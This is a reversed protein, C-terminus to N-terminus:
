QCSPLLDDEKNTKSEWKSKMEAIIKGIQEANNEKTENRKNYNRKNHEMNQMHQQQLNCMDRSNAACTAAYFLFYRGQRDKPTNLENGARDTVTIFGKASLSKITDSIVRRSLKTKNEFQSYTIRDKQKRWGYTQRIIVLLVKLEAYSLVPLLQDFVINPTKTYGVKM